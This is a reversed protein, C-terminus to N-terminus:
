RALSFVEEYAEGPAGGPAFHQEHVRAEGSHRLTLVTSCRTGYHEGVIFPASLLRRLELPLHTDPLRADPAPRRDQLLAAFAGPATDGADLQRQMHDRALEAKPWPTDLVANSLAYTGPELAGGRTSRNSFYHLGDRDGFLLNFGAYASETDELRQQFREASLGDTLWMSVLEGRSRPAPDGPPERYNTVVSFRGHENVGLWTGGAVLDRGALVRPTGPWWGLPSAPRDFREDRNAAVVLAYDPHQQWGVTVLCM